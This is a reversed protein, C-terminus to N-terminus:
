QSHYSPALLVSDVNQPPFEWLSDVKRSFFTGDLSQPFKTTGSAYSCCMSPGRVPAVTAIDHEELRVVRLCSTISTISTLPPKPHPLCCSQKHTHTTAHISPQSINWKPQPLLQLNYSNGNTMLPSVPQKRQTTLMFTRKTSSATRRLSQM